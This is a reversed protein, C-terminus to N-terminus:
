LVIEKWTVFGDAEPDYLRTTVQRLTSDAGDLNLDYLNYKPGFHPNRHPATSTSGAEAVHFPANADRTLTSFGWQHNHGHIVLHVRHERFIDLLQDADVLRRFLERRRSTHAPPVVHHHLAVMVFRGRLSPDSLVAALGERQAAGVRGVAFLPPSPICSNVGVIAVEPHPFKVWPYHEEDVVLDPLVSQMWPGFFSEFRLTRASNYTYYDHNGPIISVRDPGGGHAEIIARAEAFESELSLNSLDGTVVIHDAGDARIQDLARIVTEKSHSRARRMLLNLGGTLRKGLYRWARVNALHLIHLDSIHAIRM